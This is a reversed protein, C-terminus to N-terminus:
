TINALADIIQHKHHLDCLNLFPYKKIENKSVKIDVLVEGLHDRDKGCASHSLTIMREKTLREKIM